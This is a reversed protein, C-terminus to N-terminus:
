RKGSMARRAAFFRSCRSRPDLSPSICIGRTVNRKLAIPLEGVSILGDDRGSEGRGCQKVYRRRVRTVHSSRTILQYLDIPIVAPKLNRFRYYFGGRSELVVSCYSPIILFFTNITCRVSINCRYTILTIQCVPVKKPSHCQM